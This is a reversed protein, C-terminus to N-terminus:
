YHLYETFRESIEAGGHRQIEEEIRAFVGQLLAEDSGVMVIGLEARQWLDQLGTEAASVPFRERLRALLRRVVARKEKLNQPSWLLLDLRLVGVVM